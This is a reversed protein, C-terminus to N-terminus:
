LYNRCKVKPVVHGNDGILGKPNLMTRSAFPQMSRRPNKKLANAFQKSSLIGIKEVKQDSGIEVLIFIDWPKKVRTTRGKENEATITKVSIKHNHTNCIFDYAPNSKLNKPKVIDCGEEKLYQFAVFEGIRGIINDNGSLETSQHKDFLKNVDELFEARATLYKKGIKKLEELLTM